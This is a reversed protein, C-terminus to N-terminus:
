RNRHDASIKALRSRLAPLEALHGAKQLHVHLPIHVHPRRWNGSSLQRDITGDLWLASRLRNVVPDQTRWREAREGKEYRAIYLSNTVSFDTHQEDFLIYGANCRDEFHAHKDGFAEDQTVRGDEWRCIMNFFSRYDEYQEEEFITERPLSIRVTGYGIYYYDWSGREPM